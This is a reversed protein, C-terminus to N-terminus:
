AESEHTEHCVCEYYVRHKIRINCLMSLALRMHFYRVCMMQKLGCVCEDTIGVCTQDIRVCDWMNMLGAGWKIVSKTM